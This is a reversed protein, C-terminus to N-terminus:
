WCLDALLSPLLLVYLSNSLSSYYSAILTSVLMALSRSVQWVCVSCLRCSTSVCMCSSVMFAAFTEQEVSILAAGTAPHMFRSRVLPLSSSLPLGQLHRLQESLSLSLSLPCHCSLTTPLSFVLRPSTVSHPSLAFYPPSHRGNYCVVVSECANASM